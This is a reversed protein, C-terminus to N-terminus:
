AKGPWPWSLGSRASTSRSRRSTALSRATGQRLADLDNDGADALGLFMRALGRPSGIETKRTVLPAQECRQGLSSLREDDHGHAAPRQSERPLGFVGVRQKVGPKAAALSAVPDRIQQEARESVITKDPMRVSIDTCDEIVHNNTLLDGIEDVFFGTGM